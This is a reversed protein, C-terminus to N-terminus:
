FASVDVETKVALPGHGLFKILEHEVATSDEMIDRQLRVFIDIVNQDSGRSYEGHLCLRSSFAGTCRSLPIILDDVIALCQLERVIRVGTSDLLCPLLRISEACM